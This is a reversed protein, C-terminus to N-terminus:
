SQAYLAYEYVMALHLCGAVAAGLPLPYIKMRQSRRSAGTHLAVDDIQPKHQTAWHTTLRQIVCLLKSQRDLCDPHITRAMGPPPEHAEEFSQAVGPRAASLLSLGKAHMGHTVENERITVFLLYM